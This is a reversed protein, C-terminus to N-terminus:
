QLYSPEQLNTPITLHEPAEKPNYDGKLNYNGNEPLLSFRLGKAEQSERSDYGEGGVDKFSLGFGLRYAM